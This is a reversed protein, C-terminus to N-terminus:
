KQEIYEIIINTVDGCMYNLLLSHIKICISKQKMKCYHLIDCFLYDSEKNCLMDHNTSISNITRFLQWIKNMPWHCYFNAKPFLYVYDLIEKTYKTYSTILISTNIVDDINYKMDHFESKNFHHKIIDTIEVDSLNYHNM